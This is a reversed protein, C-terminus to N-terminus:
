NPGNRWVLQETSCAGCVRAFELGSKRIKAKNGCQRCAHDIPTNKECTRCKFYYGYKGYTAVLDTSNCHRCAAEENKSADGIMQKSPAPVAPSGTNVRAATSPSHTSQEPAPAVSSSSRSKTKQATHCEGLYAVIRQMEEDKLAWMGYDGHPKSILRGAKQHRSIEQLIRDCIQDAKCVEPPHTGKRKIIGRDSIAVCIDIPCHKFGPQIKGFIRKDRLHEKQRDLQKRLFEGQRKAQKIPSPMGEQKRGWVRIWEDHENVAVEGSISKSEIIFCGYRHFVLHDIQAADEGDVLRLDNFVFVDPTEGFARRLYFAMQEEAANGAQEFKNNTSVGTKTKAIM